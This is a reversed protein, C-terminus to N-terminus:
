PEEAPEQDATPAELTGPIEYVGPKGDVVAYAHYEEAGSTAPGVFGLDLSGTPSGLPAVDPRDYGTSAAGIVQLSQDTFVVCRTDGAASGFWGVLRVSEANRATDFRDLNGKESAGLPVVSNRNIRRGLLGCDDEFDSSFPYHGM